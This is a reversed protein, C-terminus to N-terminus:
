FNMLNILFSLWKMQLFRQKKIEHIENRIVELVKIIGEREKEEVRRKEDEARKKDEKTTDKLRDLSDDLGIIKGSSNM